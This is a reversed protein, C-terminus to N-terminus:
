SGSGHGGTGGFGGRSIGLSRGISSGTGSFARGIFTGHGGSGSRQTSATSTDDDFTEHLGWLAAGGALLGLVINRTKHQGM